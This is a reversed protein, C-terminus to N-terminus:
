CWRDDSSTATFWQLRRPPARADFGARDGLEPAFVPPAYADAGRAALMHANCLHVSESEWHGRENSSDAPFLDDARPGDLGFGILLGATASTGSRHMGVVALCPAWDPRVEPASM